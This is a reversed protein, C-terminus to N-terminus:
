IVRDSEHTGTAINGDQYHSDIPVEREIDYYTDGSGGGCGCLSVTGPVRFSLRVKRTAQGEKIENFKQAIDSSLESSGTEQPKEVVKRQTWM